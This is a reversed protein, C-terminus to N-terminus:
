FHGPAIYKIGLSELIIKLCRTFLKAKGTESLSLYKQSYSSLRSLTQQSVYRGNKTRLRYPYNAFDEM